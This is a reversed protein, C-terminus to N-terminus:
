KLDLLDFIFTSGYKKEIGKITNVANTKGKTKEYSRKQSERISQQQHCVYNNIMQNTLSAGTLLDLSLARGLQVQPNESELNVAVETATESLSLSKNKIKKKISM